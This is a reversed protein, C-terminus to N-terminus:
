SKLLNLIEKVPAKQADLEQVKALLRKPIYKSSKILRDGDEWIEYHYWPQPYDKGNIAITKWQISGSGLGKDRRTKSPRSKSTTLPSREDTSNSNKAGVLLEDRDSGQVVGLLQLIEVVPRKQEEAKQVRELM